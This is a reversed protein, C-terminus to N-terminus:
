KEEPWTFYAGKQSLVTVAKEIVDIKGFATYWQQLAPVAALAAKFKEENLRSLIYFLGYLAADGYLAVQGGFFPGSLLKILYNLHVPLTEEFFTTFAKLPNDDYKAKAIANFLDATEEVLSEALGYTALSDGQIGGKRSLYRILAGSQAITVDGDKIYPLQGFPANPKDAPWTNATASDWHIEVNALAATFYAPTARAVLDWYVLTVAM